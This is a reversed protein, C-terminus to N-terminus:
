DFFDYYNYTPMDTKDYVNTFDNTEYNLQSKTKPEFLETEYDYYSLSNKNMNKNNTSLFPVPHNKILVFDLTMVMLTIILVYILLKDEKINFSQLFLYIIAYLLVYKILYNYKYTMCSKHTNKKNSKM